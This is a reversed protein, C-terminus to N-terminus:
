FTMQFILYKKFEGSYLENQILMISLVIIRDCQETELSFTIVIIQEHHLGGCNGTNIYDSQPHTHTRAHIESMLTHVYM